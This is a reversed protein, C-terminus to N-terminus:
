REAVLRLFRAFGMEKKLHAKKLPSSLHPQFSSKLHHDV